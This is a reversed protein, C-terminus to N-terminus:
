ISSKRKLSHLPKWQLRWHDWVLIEPNSRLFFFLTTLRESFIHFNTAFGCETYFSRCSWAMQWMNLLTDLNNFSVKVAMNEKSNNKLHGTHLRQGGHIVWGWTKWVVRIISEGAAHWTNSVLKKKPWVRSNSTKLCLEFYFLCREDTFYNSQQFMLFLM